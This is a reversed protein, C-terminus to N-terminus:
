RLKAGVTDVQMSAGALVAGHVRGPGMIINPDAAGDGDCDFNGNDVVVTVNGAFTNAGTTAEFVAGLNDPGASLTNGAFANRCASRVLIAATGANAVRNDRVVNDTFSVPRFVVVSAMQIGHITPDVILNGLFESHDLDATAIGNAWPGRVLNDAVVVGTGDRVRIAGFDAGTSPATAVIENGELRVGNTLGQLHVGTASGASEFRNKAVVTRPVNTGFICEDVGCTVTNELIQVRDTNLLLFPDVWSGTLTNLSIVVDRSGQVRIGGVSGAAGDLRNREVRTGTDALNALALSNAWPGRVVNGTIRVNRGDRVRLGGLVPSGSPATAVIVNHEVRSGDIGGQMQVGTFSGASNFENGSVVANTTAFFFACDGPSCTVRNNTLRVDTAFGIVGDGDIDAPDNLALYPDGSAGSGDLRLGDVTVSPALVKVLSSVPAGADVRLGSGTAACTLTISSRITVDSTVAIMGDIGIVDGAHAGSLAATLAAENSVVVTPNAACAAAAVIEYSPQGPSAPRTPETCASTLSLSLLLPLSAPTRDM